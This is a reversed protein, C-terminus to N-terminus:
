FRSLRWFAFGRIANPLFEAWLGLTMAAFVLFLPNLLPVDRVLATARPIVPMMEDSPELWHIRQNWDLKPLLAALRGRPLAVSAQVRENWCFFLYSAPMYVNLILGAKTLMLIGFHLSSGILYALPRTRRPVLLVGTAVESIA